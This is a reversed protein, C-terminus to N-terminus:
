WLFPSSSSLPAPAERRLSGEKPRFEIKVGTIRAFAPTRLSLPRLGREILIGEGALLDEPKDALVPQLPTLPSTFGLLIILTICITKM